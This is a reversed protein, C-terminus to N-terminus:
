KKVKEVGGGVTVTQLLEPRIRRKFAEKIDAVTVADIRQPFTELYDLPLHHFGIMGLYRM